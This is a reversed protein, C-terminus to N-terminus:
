QTYHTYKRAWEENLRNRFWGYFRFNESKKQVLRPEKKGCKWIMFVSWIKLHLLKHVDLYMYLIFLIKIWPLLSICLKLDIFTLM